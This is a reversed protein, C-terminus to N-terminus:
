EDPGGTEALNEDVAPSSPCCSHLVCNGRDGSQNGARKCGPCIRGHQIMLVHLAYKLDDPVKAELHAQTRIRDAEPPVWGLFKSIRFVHTDVAFSSRGLSFLLVCSATKPGVGDYSLLQAMIEGDSLRGDGEDALHQLSYEGHKAKIDQLLKKITVAKKNALGGSRISSVVDEVPAEAVAEFNNRGFREDLGRKAGTSNAASTNQSLITEVLGEIVNSQGAHRNRQQAQLKGPAPPDGARHARWLTDYVQRAEEATPHPWDPFPTENSFSAQLKLKKNRQTQKVKSATGSQGAMEGQIANMHNRESTTPSIKRKRKTSITESMIHHTGSISLHGLNSVFVVHRIPTVRAVTLTPPLGSPSVAMVCIVCM